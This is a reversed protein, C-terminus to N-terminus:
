AEGLPRLELRLAKNGPSGVWGVEEIRVLLLRHPQNIDHLVLIKGRRYDTDDKASVITCEVLGSVLTYEAVRLALDANEWPNYHAVKM